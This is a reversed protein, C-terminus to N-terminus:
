PSFFTWWFQNPKICTPKSKSFTTPWHIFVVTVAIRGPFHIWMKGSSTNFVDFAIKHTCHLASKNVLVSWNNRAVSNWCYHFFFFVCVDNISTLNKILLYIDPNISTHIHTHSHCSCSNYSYVLLITTMLDDIALLIIMAKSAHM